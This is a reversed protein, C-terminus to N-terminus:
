IGELSRGYLKFMMNRRERVPDLDKFLEPHSWAALLKVAYQFKLTWLDCLFVQPLEFIRRNRVARILRWQPDALLDAPNKRENFWMVIMEPNWELVRELNVVLHESRVAGCVNRGGALTILEEVTSGGCSTELNGQAWMYYISPRHSVPLASVRHNVREIEARTYAILEDARKKRGTLVGLDRIERYVDERSKLFVGYVPIGRSELAQISERQQSWIIVLDPKLAVVSEIGVFDWNGPAPLKRRKIREDLTSYWSNVSGNYINASVGVLRQEAGLMYLGSLASEILCVIRAAPKRLALRKGRFDTVTVSARANVATLVVMLLLLACVLAEFLAPRFDTRCDCSPTKRPQASRPKFCKYRIM